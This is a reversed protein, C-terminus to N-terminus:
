PDHFIGGKKSFYERSHSNFRASSGKPASAVVELGGLEGASMTLILTAFHFCTKAVVYMTITMYTWKLM